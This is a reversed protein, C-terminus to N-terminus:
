QIRTIKKSNNRKNLILGACTGAALILLIGILSDWEVSGTGKVATRGNVTAIVGLIATLANILFMLELRLEREPLLWHLAAAVLPVCIMVIGATTWALTGFDAGPFAFIIEVLMAFLVPFILLGPFWQTVVLIVKGVRSMAEGSVYKVMMICFTVQLFVDVTLIVSTDLMLEPNNLWDTIQTKSQGSADEWTLGVFLAAVACLILRGPLNDFTLKLVFNFGVLLMIIVIVIEM